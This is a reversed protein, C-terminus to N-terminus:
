PIGCGTARHRCFEAFCDRNMERIATALKRISLRRRHSEADRSFRIPLRISEISAFVSLALGELPLNAASMWKIRDVIHHGTPVARTLAPV